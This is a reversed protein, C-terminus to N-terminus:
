GSNVELSLNESLEKSLVDGVTHFSRGGDRREKQGTSM